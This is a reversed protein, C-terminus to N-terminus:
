LGPRAKELCIVLTFAETQREYFQFPIGGIWTQHLAFACKETKEPNLSTLVRLFLVQEKGPEKMKERAWPRKETEPGAGREMEFGEQDRDRFSLDLLCLDSRIGTGICKLYAEKRSWIRNLYAGAQEDPLDSLVKREEPHLIRKSLAERFPFRGEVDIGANLAESGSAIVIALDGNRSHSLNFRIEPHDPLYPKGLPERQLDTEKLDFRTRFLAFLNRCAFDHLKKGREEEPARTLFLDM